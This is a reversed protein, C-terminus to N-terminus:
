IHWHRVAPLLVDYIVYWLHGDEEWEPTTSDHAKQSAAADGSEYAANTLKARTVSM